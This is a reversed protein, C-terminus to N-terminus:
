ATAEDDVDKTAVETQAQSHKKGVLVGLSVEVVCGAVAGIEKRQGTREEQHHHPRAEVAGGECINIRLHRDDVSEQGDGTRDDAGEDGGSPQNFTRTSLNLFIHLLLHRVRCRCCCYAHEINAM